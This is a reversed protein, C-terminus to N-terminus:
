IHILSLEHPMMYPNRTNAQPPALVPALLAVLTFGVIIVLGLMSLPNRRFRLWAIQWTTRTVPLAQEVAKRQALVSMSM